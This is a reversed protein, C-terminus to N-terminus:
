VIRYGIYNCKDNSCGITKKIQVSVITVNPEIDLLEEKCKPCAFGNYVPSQGLMGSHLTTTVSRQKFLSKFKLKKAM